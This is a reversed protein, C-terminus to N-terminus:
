KKEDFLDIFNRTRDYQFSYKHAFDWGRDPAQYAVLHYGEFFKGPSLDSDFKVHFTPTVDQGARSFEWAFWKKQGPPLVDENWASDGWKHQFRVTVHTTNEVGVVGFRDAAHSQTASWSLASLSLLFGFALKTMWNMKM